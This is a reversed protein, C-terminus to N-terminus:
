SILLADVPTGAPIRGTTEPLIVYAQSTLSAAFHASGQRSSVWAFPKRVEARYFCRLGSPKIVDNKLTLKVYSAEPLGLLRGLLPKAFFHWGVATSIPNGPLGLWIINNKQALFIPKGPRIAIKHFLVEFDMKQAIAPIMDGDGMSVAGTSIIVIPDDQELTSAIFKSIEKWDDRLHITKHPSLGLARLSVELFPYSSNYIEGPELPTGPDKLENGTSCIIIRPNKKMRLQSIGFAAAVMIHEPNLLTGRKLLLSGQPLDEGKFRIHSGRPPIKRFVVESGGPLTECDEIPIVTDIWSPIAAGTMIKVAHLSPDFVETYEHLDSHSQGAFLAGVVHLPEKILERYQFGYGDMSANSFPPSDIPAILDEALTRGVCQHLPLLEATSDSFEMGDLIAKAEDYTKLEFPSTM